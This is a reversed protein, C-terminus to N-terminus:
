IREELEKQKGFLGSPRVALIVLIAILSVIMKWHPGSLTDTLMQAYGILFSAVVVGVTSGLGGIICVALANILVDYGENVSITGRPLILIAAMAAVGSGLAVSIGAIWDSNIGLSLATREDQAIGRFALGTRTHHTFLYLGIALAIGAGIIWLRQYDIYTNGIMISGESFVPLTYEFGTYGLYRFLELIALGVGFTAIVESIVLGRIRLLVFRYLLAGLAATFLVSLIVAPLFPLSLKHIFIWVGYGALVYMAGYAFNSVGSIGFTLSFGLAIMALIISNVFGYILTVELM